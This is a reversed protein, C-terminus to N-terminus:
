LGLLLLDGVVCCFLCVVCCSLVCSFLRWVLVVCLLFVSCLMGYVCLLSM